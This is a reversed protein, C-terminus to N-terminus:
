GISSDGKEHSTPQLSYHLFYQPILITVAESSGIFVDAEAIAIASAINPEPM